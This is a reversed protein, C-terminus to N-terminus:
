PAEAADVALALIRDNIYDHVALTTGDPSLSFDSVNVGHTVQTLGSGDPSVAFVKSSRVFYIRGDRGWAPAVDSTGSTIQRLDSGDAAIVYLPQEGM